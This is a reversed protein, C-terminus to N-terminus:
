EVRDFTFWRMMGVSIHYRNQIIARADDFVANNWDFGLSEAVSKIASESPGEFEVYTPIKPWTDIDITVGDLEFTHRKKEQQRFAVLGINELFEAAIEANPVAFEIEKASDVTQAANHKYTLKTTNNASRIRVFRGEGPWKNESDYFITEGLLAEGKDTAGHKTLKGILDQENIELFRAEIETNMRTHYRSRPAPAILM